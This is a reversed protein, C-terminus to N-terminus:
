RRRRGTAWLGIGIADVMNHDIGPPIDKRRRCEACYEGVDFPVAEQEVVSLANLIRPHDVFKKVSGKWGRRSTRATTHDAPRVLEFEPPDLAGAIYGAIGVLQLLDDAGRKRRVQMMEIVLRDIQCDVEELVTHATEAWAAGDRDYGEARPRSAVWAKVLRDSDDFLACGCVRLGPDVALM